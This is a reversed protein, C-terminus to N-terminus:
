GRLRGAADDPDLINIMTGTGLEYGALTTLRPYAHLHWHFDQVGPPATHLVLNHAPEFGLARNLRRLLDVLALAITRDADGGAEFSAEHRTPLLLAEMPTSSAWPCLTVLGDCETVVRTGLALESKTMACAACGPGALREAEASILEPRFSTAYVQSHSHELSAGARRGENVTVTVAGPWVQRLASLRRRWAAVVGTFVDEPLETLRINHEPGHVVVEHSGGAVQGGGTGDRADGPPTAAEAGAGNGSPTSTFAPYKNPVVRIRWGPTDPATAPDRDAWVEPPTLSERGACFPCDRAASGNAGPLDDGSAAFAAPRDARGAAIITRRGSLPDERLESTRAGSSTQNPIISTVLRAYRQHSTAQWAQPPQPQSLAAPAPM